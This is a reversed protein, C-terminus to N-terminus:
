LYSGGGGGLDVESLSHKAYYYHPTHGRGPLLHLTGSYAGLEDPHHFYPWCEDPIEVLGRESHNPSSHSFQCEPQVQALLVSPFQILVFKCHVLSPHTSICGANM